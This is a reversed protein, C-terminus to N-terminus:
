VMAFIVGSVKAFNTLIFRFLNGKGRRQDKMQGQVFDDITQFSGLWLGPTDDPIFETIWNAMNQASMEMLEACWKNLANLYAAQLDDAEAEEFANPNLGVMSFATSLASADPSQSEAIWDSREGTTSNILRRWNSNSHKAEECDHRCHIFLATMVKNIRRQHHKNRIRAFTGTDEDTISKEDVTTRCNCINLVAAININSSNNGDGDGLQQLTACALAALSVSFKAVDFGLHNLM